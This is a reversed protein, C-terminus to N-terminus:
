QIKNEEFFEHATGSSSHKQLQKVIDSARKGHEGIKKINMLLYEATEKKETLNKSQAIEVALEESLESFNNVFNLPNQIEHAMRQAMVGFAAVKESRILQTQTDKLNQLTSELIVNAKRKESYGKYIGFAFLLVVLLGGISTYKIIKQKQLEANVLADKKDQLVKAIAGKKDFEFQMATEVTKKTTEQNLASDRYLIYLKNNEFASQWKGEASDVSALNQIIFNFYSLSKTEKALELAEMTYKRANKNEHLDLYVSGINSLTTILMKKEGIEMLIEKSTNLYKLAEKPNSNESYMVDGIASTNYAEWLRNGTAQNIKLAEFFNQIATEHKNQYHYIIAVNHYNAAVQSVYGIQKAMELAISYYKLAETNNGLSFNVSGLNSNAMVMCEKYKMEEAMKLAKYCYKQAEPLNSMLNYLFGFAAYVDAIRHKNSIENALLLTNNFYKMSLTDEGKNMYLNALSYYADTIGTKYKIQEALLLAQNAHELGISINNYWYAKSLEYLINIKVTDRTEPTKGHMELKDVEFQKLENQLSEILNQDQSFGTNPFLFLLVLFHKLLNM